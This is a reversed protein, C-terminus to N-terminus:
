RNQKMKHKEQRIKKAEEKNPIHERTALEKKIEDITYWKSGQFAYGNEYFPNYSGGCHRASHLLRLLEKTHLTKLYNEYDISM